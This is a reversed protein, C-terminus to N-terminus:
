TAATPACRMSSRPWRRTAPCRTLGTGLRSAAETRWSSGQLDFAKQGTAAMVTGLDPAGPDLVSYYPASEYWNGSLASYATLSAAQRAHGSVPSNRLAAGVAAICAIALLAAATTTIAMRVRRRRSRASCRPEPVAPDM